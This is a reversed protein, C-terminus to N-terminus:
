LASEKRVRTHTIELKPDMACALASPMEEATTLGPPVAVRPTDRDTEPVAGTPNCHFTAYEGACIELKAIVAPGAADAADLVREQAVPTPTAVHTTVPNFSLATPDPTTAFIV